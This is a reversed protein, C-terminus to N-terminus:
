DTSGSYIDLGLYLGRESIRALTARSIDLEENIGDLFLGCYVRGDFRNSFSRWITLDDSLGDLLENIQGDLDAPERDEVSLLWRGTRAIKERRNAREDGKRVEFNPTRGLRATIDSPDLDDGYFGITASSKRVLPM